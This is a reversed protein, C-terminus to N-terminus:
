PRTTRARAHHEQHLKHTIWGAFFLCIGVLLHDLQHRM